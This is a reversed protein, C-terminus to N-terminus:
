YFNFCKRSVCYVKLCDLFLKLLTSHWTWHHKCLSRSYRRETCAIVNLARTSFIPVQSETIWLCCGEWWPYTHKTHSLHTNRTHTIFLVYHQKATVSSPAKTFFLNLSHCNTSRFRSIRLQALLQTIPSDQMEVPLKVVCRFLPYCNVDRM